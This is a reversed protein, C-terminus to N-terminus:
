NDSYVTLALVYSCVTDSADVFAELGLGNRPYEKMLQKHRRLCDNMEQASLDNIFRCTGIPSPVAARLLGDRTKLIAATAKELIEENFDEHDM